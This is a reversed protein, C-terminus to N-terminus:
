FQDDSTTRGVWSSCWVQLEANAREMMDVEKKLQNFKQREKYVVLAAQHRALLEMRMDEVLAKRLLTAKTDRRTRELLPEIRAQTDSALRSKEPAERMISNYRALVHPNDVRSMKSPEARTEHHEGSIDRAKRKQASPPPSMLSKALSKVFAGNQNDVSAMLATDHAAMLRQSSGLIPSAETKHFAKVRAQVDRTYPINSDSDVVEEVSSKRSTELANESAVETLSETIGESPVPSSPRLDQLYQANPEVAVKTRLVSTALSSVTLSGLTEVDEKPQQFQLEPQPSNHVPASPTMVGQNEMDQPGAQAPLGVSIDMAESSLLGSTRCLKNKSKGCDSEAELDLYSIQTQSDNRPAISLLSALNWDSSNLQNQTTFPYPLSNTLHLQTQQSKTPSSASALGPSSPINYVQMNQDPITASQSKLAKLPLPPCNECLESSLTSRISPNLLNSSDPMSHTSGSNHCDPAVCCSMIPMSDEKTSRAHESLKPINFSSNPLDNPGSKIVKQSSPGSCVKLLDLSLSSSIGPMHIPPSSFSQQPATAIQTSQPLIDPMRNKPDWPTVELDDDEDELKETAARKLYARHAPATKVGHLILEAKKRKILEELTEIEKDENRSVAMTRANSDIRDFDNPFAPDEVDRSKRTEDTTSTASPSEADVVTKAEGRGKETISVATPKVTAPKTITRSEVADNSITPDTVQGTTATRESCEKTAPSKPMAGLESTHEDVRERELPM